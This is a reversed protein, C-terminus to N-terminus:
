GYHWEIRVALHAPPLARKTRRVPQVGKSLLEFIGAMYDGGALRFPM